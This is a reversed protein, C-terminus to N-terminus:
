TTTDYRLVVVVRSTGLMTTGDMGIHLTDGKSFASVSTFNIETVNTYGGGSLTVNVTELATTSQNVHTTVNTSGGGYGSHALRVVEGDFPCAHLVISSTIGTSESQSGGSLPIYVRSTTSSYFASQLVVYQWNKVFEVTAEAAGTPTFSMLEGDTVPLADPLVLVFSSAIAAPAGWAAFNTGNTSKEYLSAQGSLASTNGKLMLASHVEFSLPRFICTTLINFVSAGFEAVVVSGAKIELATAPAGAASVDITRTTGDVIQQDQAELNDSSGGSPALPQWESSAAVWELVDGDVPARTVTDVDGMDDIVLADTRDEATTIADAIAATNQLLNRRISESASQSSAATNNPVYVVPPRIDGAVPTSITLDEVLTLELDYVDQDATFRMQSILYYKSGIGVRSYPTLLGECIAVGGFIEQQKAMHRLRDMCLLENIPSSAVTGTSVFGSPNVPYSRLAGPSFSTFGYNFDSYSEGYSSPLIDIEETAGNAISASYGLTDGGASEGGRIIYLWTNVIITANDLVAEATNYADPNGADAVGHFGRITATIEIDADEATGIEPSDLSFQLSQMDGGWTEGTVVIPDTFVTVRDASNSTWEAQPQNGPNFIDATGVVNDTTSYDFPTERKLYKTGVRVQLDLRYRTLQADGVQSVYSNHAQMQAAITIQDTAGLDAGSDFATTYFQPNLSSGVPHFEVWNSQMYPHTGFYDLQRSIKRVAPLYTTGWGSLRYNAGSQSLTFAVIDNTNTILGGDKGYRRVYNLTAAIDMMRSTPMIRWHGDIMALRSNFLTLIQVLMTECSGVSVGVVDEAYTASAIIVDDLFDDGTDPQVDASMSMYPTSASYMDRTPIQALSQYLRGFIKDNASSWAATDFEVSSLTALGCIATLDIQQPFYEDSIELSEPTMMGLWYDAPTGDPDATVKVLFRGEQFDALDAVLALESANRAMMHVKCTSPMLPSFIDQGGTYALSFGPAALTFEAAGGVFDSDHIEIRWVNGESSTLEAYFRQAM